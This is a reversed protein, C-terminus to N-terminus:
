NTKLLNNCTEWAKMATGFSVLPMTVTYTHTIPWTPWFGLTLQMSRGMGMSELLAQRQKVFQLNTRHAVTELVFSRDDDVRIGTEQYSLDIVSDTKFQLQEPTLWFTVRTGGQGDDMKVPTSQLVCRSEYRDVIWQDHINIPMKDLVVPINEVIYAAPALSSKETVAEASPHTPSPPPEVPKAKPKDPMPSSKLASKYPTKAQAPSSPEDVSPAVPALNVLPVVEAPKTQGNPSPNVSEAIHNVCGLLTLPTVIFLWLLTSRYITDM